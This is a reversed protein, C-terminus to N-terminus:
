ALQESHIERCLILCEACITVDGALKGAQNGVSIALGTVRHRRKGCFGCQQQTMHGPVTQLPGLATETAQGSHIVAEAMEVCKECIYIGPGAILKRTKRQPRGCFSCALDPPLRGHRGWRRGGGATEVIQHVRQHSLHLAAALERLSAGSLHLRRVARHFEAKAVEAAHDAEILQEQAQRAAALLKEDVDDVTGLRYVRRCPGSAHRAWPVAATM